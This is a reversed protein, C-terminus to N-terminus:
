LGMVNLSPIKKFAQDSFVPDPESMLGSKKSYFGNVQYVDLHISLIM